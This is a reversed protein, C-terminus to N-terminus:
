IFILNKLKDSRIYNLKELVIVANHNFGSHEILRFMAATLNFLVTLKKPKICYGIANFRLFSYVATLSIFSGRINEHKDSFPFEEYFMHNVIIHEFLIQWEPYFEDFAKKGDRYRTVADALESDSLEDKGEMGYYRQAESCFDHVSLSDDFRNTFLHQISLAEAIDTQIPVTDKDSANWIYDCLLSLRDPLSYRRDQIIDICSRQVNFEDSNIAKGDPEKELNLQKNLFRLPTRIGSLLEIVEECSNSCTCDYMFAHHIARPYYRCVSPVYEEGLEAQIACLGDSRHLFCRGTYDCNIIAYCGDDTGGTVKLACDLKVRLEKSCEAGVLRFYDNMSITINWGECCPHRCESAKCKFDPYYEPIIFSHISKM